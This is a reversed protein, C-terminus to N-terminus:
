IINKFHELRARRTESNALIIILDLRANELKIGRKICFAALAIKLNNTQKAGLPDEANSFSNEVRTKVEIFIYEQDHKFILDIERRSEHHNQTIFQYGNKLLYFKAIEEGWVGLKKSSIM